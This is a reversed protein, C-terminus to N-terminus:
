KEDGSGAVIELEGSRARAALSNCLMWTNVRPGAGKWDCTKGTAYRSVAGRYSGRCTGYGSSISTAAAFAGTYTAAYSTNTMKSWGQAWSHIQWPGHAKHGITGDARVYPDCEWPKCRGEHVHKSYRTEHWGLALVGMALDTPDGYWMRKCDPVAEWRGTCSARDSADAVSMAITSMRAHREIPDENVDEYWRPLILLVM